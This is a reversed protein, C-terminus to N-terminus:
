TRLRRREALAWEALMAMPPELPPPSVHIAIPWNPAKTAREALLLIAATAVAFVIM